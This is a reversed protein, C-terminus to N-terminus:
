RDSEIEKCILQAADNNYLDQLSTFNKKYVDLKKMMTEILNFLEGSTGSQLFIKGIGYREFIEAHKEQENYAAWPLPIFLAPKQLIVLEFFTNAGSRGIVLDTQSYIYGIEDEFFHKHPYYYKKM